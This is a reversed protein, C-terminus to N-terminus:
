LLCEEGYFLTHAATAVWQVLLWCLAQSARAGPAELDGPFHKTGTGEGYLM